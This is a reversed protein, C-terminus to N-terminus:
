CGASRPVFDGVDQAVGARAEEEDVRAAAPRERREIQGAIVTTRM